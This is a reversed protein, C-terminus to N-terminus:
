ELMRPEKKKKLNLGKIIKIKKTIFGALRNRVKKSPSYIRGEGILAQVTKKNHEFEPKFRDQDKEVLAKGVRKIYTPKIRGM